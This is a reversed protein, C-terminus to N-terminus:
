KVDAKPAVSPSDFIQHKDPHFPEPAPSLSTKNDWPIKTYIIFVVLFCIVTIGSWIIRRDMHLKNGSETYTIGTVQEANWTLSESNFKYGKKPITEILSRNRDDFIKRLYSVSQTLGEDGGGYNDWVKEIITERDVVKGCNDVLIKLVEMFRPEVRIIVPLVGENLIEVLNEDFKIHYKGKLTIEM